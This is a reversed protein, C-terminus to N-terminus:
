TKVLEWPEYEVERARPPPAATPPPAVSKFEPESAQAPAEVWLAALAAAVLLIPTAVRVAAIWGQRARSAM